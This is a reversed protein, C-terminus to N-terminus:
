RLIQVYGTLLVEGTVDDRLWYFYTGDPLDKGNWKGDWDNQYNKSKYVDLGWRNYIRLTNDPFRQLGEIVFFDNRGDGNPSFATYTILGEACRVDVVVTAESCTTSDICVRYRFSDLGCANPGRGATYKILGDRFSITDAKGKLPPRIITLFKPIQRNLTDNKYVQLVISKGQRTTDFDDYAKIGSLTATDTVTVIITTTDCLKSLKNCVVVCMTDRGVGVGTITVKKEQKNLIMRAKSGNKGPCADYVTDVAGFLQTTDIKDFILNQGLKITLRATDAIPKVTDATVTIFLRTTDCLGLRNCLVVCATDKGAKLGRAELCKTVSNYVLTANDGIIPSCSGISSILASALELTDPCYVKLEGIKITFSDIAPNPRLTDASVIVYLTTTDCFGAENCLALCFTDVGAKLGVVNVCKKVTDLGITTNDFNAPTCFKLLSVPSGALELSDPCYPKREYIKLRITDISPRPTPRTASRGLIYMTTTDCKGAADCIRICATDTGIKVGTYTVCYTNTNVDFTIDRSSSSTPCINQILTANNPAFFDCKSRSAGVAVTDRFIHQTGRIQVPITEIYLLTTDCVGSVNCVRICATDIGVKLGTYTVCPPTTVVDIGFAVDTGSNAPCFNEFANIAGTPIKIDCKRRQLGVTITDRFITIGTTPPTVVAKAEIYMYTTDCVGIANCVRVCATDVGASVGRFSACLSVADVQFTVNSGSQSTCINEITTITGSPVILNCKQRVAGVLVTDRYIHNRFGGNNPAPKAEIYMYTTDCVGATNCVRVCATDVGGALVGSYRVCNSGADLVFQVNTGSNGVCLNEFIAINGAPKKYDCNQISTGVTVTDTLTYRGGTPPNVVRNKTEIIIINTDCSGINNCVKVCATDFGVTLGTFTVCRTGLDLNFNVNRGSNAGCINVFSAIQGSPITIDCKQRTAGVLVTDRYTYTGGQTTAARVTIFYNTTDCTGNLNCVEICANNTGLALGRYNVCGGSSDVDFFVNTGSAAACINKFSKLAGSPKTISCNSKLQGVTITDYIVKSGGRTPTNTGTIFFHTTDCEPVPSNNCVRVCATDAGVGTATYTVCRTTPNLVFSISSGSRTPCYNEITLNNGVPIRIDCKQRSQGVLLTDSFIYFRGNNVEATTYLYTTDCIGYQDCVRMCATDSGVALGTMDVCFNFLPNFNVKNYPKSCFNKFTALQPVGLLQSFDMCHSRTTGIYQTQSISNPQVCAAGLTVTDREGSAIREVVFKHIGVPVKFRLGRFAVADNYGVNSTAGRGLGKISQISYTNSSTPFGYIALGITDAQWDGAPDWVRMSDRLQLLNAFSAIQYQRGNIFWSILQFPGTEGLDYIQNYSYIHLTVEKCAEFTTNFPAGNLFFRYKALSDYQVSDVCVTVGGTCDSSQTFVSDQRIFNSQASAVWGFLLLIGSLLLQKM